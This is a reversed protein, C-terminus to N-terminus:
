GILSEKTKNRVRRTSRKRKKRKVKFTQVFGLNVIYAYTM